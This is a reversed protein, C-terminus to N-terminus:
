VCVPGTTACHFLPGSEGHMISYSGVPFYSRFPFVPDTRCLTTCSSTETTNIMVCSNAWVILAILAILGAFIIIPILIHITYSKHKKKRVM